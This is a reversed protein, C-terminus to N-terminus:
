QKQLYAVPITFWLIFVYIFLHKVKFFDNRLPVAQYEAASTKSYIKFLSSFPMRSFLM